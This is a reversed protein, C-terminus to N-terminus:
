KENLTFDSLNNGTKQIDSYKVTDCVNVEADFNSNLPYVSMTKEDQNDSWVNCVTGDNLQCYRM